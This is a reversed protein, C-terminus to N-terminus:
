NYSIRPDAVAYLIDAVLNMLLVMAVSIMFSVMAVNYDNGNISELILHGVGQFAFVTETIVAGSFLASMSLAIITILPILANRLGHHIIIQWKSLGKARATRMYDQRLVDLMAARTFRVFSGISMLSLSCIPLVLYKARDLFYAFGHFDAGITATGGAPFIPLWVAFLIILVIALWFSPVSIGAFSYFNILYDIKKGQHLAAFIGLPIAILLSILLSISSLIFTNMLRPALLDGVPIKYTRSYGLDGQLFNKAWHYYRQYIPRDLGYLSKLRAVDESTMNPRSSVMLDVPDGPMLAMLGFCFYSLLLIVISTQFLRRLLYSSM